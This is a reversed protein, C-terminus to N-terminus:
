VMHAGPDTMIDMKALVQVCNNVVDISKGEIFHLLGSWLFKDPYLCMVTTAAPPYNKIHLAERLAATSEQKSFLGQLSRPKLHLAFLIYGIGIASETDRVHIALADLFRTAIFHTEEVLFRYDTVRNLYPLLTRALTAGEEMFTTHTLSIEINLM